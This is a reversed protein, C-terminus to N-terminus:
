KYFNKIDHSNRFSTRMDIYPNKDWGIPTWHFYMNRYYKGQFPTERGHICLSEYFLMDGDEFFVQHHNYDHDYFDLPWNRESKQDIYIICSIIHTDIRDRHLHLVSNKIYSRIGYGWARELKRKCWNEILPTIVAYCEEYLEHSINERHYYPKNNGKVSIGGATINNYVKEYSVDLDAIENFEMTSYEEMIKSYLESPIKVKKFPIQNFVPPKIKTDMKKLKFTNEM